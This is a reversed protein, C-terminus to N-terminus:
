TRVYDNTKWGTVTVGNKMSESADAVRRMLEQESEAISVMRKLAREMTEATDGIEELGERAERRGDCIYGSQRNIAHTQETMAETLADIKEVLKSMVVELRDLREAVHDEFGKYYATKGTKKLEEYFLKKALTDPETVPVMGEVVEPHKKVYAKKLDEVKEFVDVGPVLGWEPDWTGHLMGKEDISTVTGTRGRLSEPAGPVEFVYVEDGVKMGRVPEQLFTHMYDAGETVRVADYKYEIGRDKMKDSRVGELSEIENVYVRCIRIKANGPHAPVGGCIAHRGNFLQTRACM